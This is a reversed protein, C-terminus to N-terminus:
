KKGKVELLETRAFARRTSEWYLMDVATDYDVWAYADHERTDIIVECLHAKLAFCVEENHTIGPAYKERWQPAIEFRNILDLEILEDASCAIATEERVERM